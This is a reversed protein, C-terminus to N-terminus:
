QQQLLNNLEQVNGLNNLMSNEDAFVGFAASDRLTVDRLSATSSELSLNANFRFRTLTEGGYEIIVGELTSNTSDILKVGGWGGPEEVNSTLVVPSESSGNIILDGGDISVAVGPVFIIEVGADITLDANILTLGFNRLPIGLNPIITDDIITLAGVSVQDIDNGTLVNDNSLSSLLVPSINGPQRNETLVNGAFADLRTSGNNLDVGFWSSRRILSREVRIRARDSSRSQVTLAAGQGAGAYEIVANVIQNDLSGTRDYTIGRWHGPIERQGTFVVPNDIDGVASLSAQATVNIGTGQAFKLVTGAGISVDAISLIEVDDNVLYCSENFDESETIATPFIADCSIDSVDPDFLSAATDSGGGMQSNATGSTNVCLPETFDSTNSAGDVSQIQYCYEIGGSVSVDTIRTSTSRLLPRFEEGQIKRDVNFAVVDDISTISWTLTVRGAMVGESTVNTPMPPPVTDVSSLTRGIVQESFPSTNGGGDFAVIQYVPNSGQTLGTDTYVPFPTTAVLGNDRFVQYGVVGVDDIAPDWVVVVETLSSAFARVNVVVNPSQTDSVANGSATLVTSTRGQFLTNPETVIIDVQSGNLAVPNRDLYEDIGSDDADFSASLIQRGTVDYGDLVLSVADFLSTSLQDFQQESPLSTLPEDNNFVNNINLGQDQYWFQLVVDSYSNVNSITGTSYAIAYRFENNGLDTRILFPADGPLDAASFRRNRNLSALSKEGTGSKIEVSESVLTKSESVTGMIGTGILGGEESPDGSGGCGFLSFACLCVIVVANRMM